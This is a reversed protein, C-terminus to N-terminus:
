NAKKPNEWKPDSPDYAPIPKPGELNPYVGETLFAYQLTETNFVGIKYNEVVILNKGDPMWSISQIYHAYPFKLSVLEKRVGEKKLIIKRRTTFIEGDGYPNKGDGQLGGMGDFLGNQEMYEVRRDIEKEIKKGSGDSNISYVHVNGDNSPMKEWFYIRANIKDLSILESNYPIKKVIGGSMMLAIFMMWLFVAGFIIAFTRIARKNMM